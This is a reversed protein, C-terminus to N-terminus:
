SGTRSQAIRSRLEAAVRWLRDQGWTAFDPTGEPGSVRYSPVGWLGLEEYMCRRNRELEDRWGEDALHARAEPWDLGAREVVQRLGSEVSTDVGEHFAARLFAGLLAEGRGRERAWPFLAYAREVPRGIPDVFRAGYEAGLTEAERRADFFIYSGKEFTAPVGRMVMPLVPRVVLRVGTERALALSREWAMATYPSRLSPFIELRIRGDDRTPGPDIAPRPAVPAGGPRAAGLERLRHELHHLRDVGWYWEGAYHFMAGAYHGLKARRAEGEAIRRRTASEDAPGAEAALRELRDKEDRFLADGLPVARAAFSAADPASALAAALLAVQEPAPAAADRPFRLGYGPAVDAADRRAWAALLAREPANAASPPPVLRVEIEVDYAAALAPLLQVALQSYPDDVQHFYELRHPARALRRRAEALRRRLRQRGPSSLGHVLLSVLRREIRSPNSRSAMRAGRDSRAPKALKAPKREAM